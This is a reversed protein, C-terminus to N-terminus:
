SGNADLFSNTSPFLIVEYTHYQLYGLINTKSRIKGLGLTGKVVKKLKPSRELLKKRLKIVPRKLSTWFLYQTNIWYQTFINYIIMEGHPEWPSIWLNEFIEGHCNLPSFRTWCQNLQQFSHFMKVKHGFLFRALELSVTHELFGVPRYGFDASSSLNIKPLVIICM